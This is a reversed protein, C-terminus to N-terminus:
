SALDALRIAVELLREDEFPRGLLQVTSGGFPITVAPLGLVNALVLPMMAQFIGIEKGNVTFRTQGHHYETISCVPMVIAAINEMQRILAARLRDRTALQVAMEEATGTWPQFLAAWVNPARELGSPSFGEVAFGAGELSRAALKVAAHIAPDVPIAYFQEWVGIR